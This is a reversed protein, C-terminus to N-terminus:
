VVPQRLVRDTGLTNATSNLTAQVGGPVVNLVPFNQLNNAGSDGDGADNATVGAGGIDIGLLGNQFISNGRIANNVGTLVRVGSQVNFAIHNAGGGAVTGIFNDSASSTIIIGASGNPVPQSLGQDAGIVNGTVFNFRATAGSITIGSQANGSIVNREGAGIFNSPADFIAIGQGGNARAAVGFADIGIFNGFVITGTTGSGNLTIGNRGNGSIINGELGVGGIQNNPSGEVFIGDARNPRAITGSPDTGLFNSHLINSGPGQIVIGTGGNAAQRVM